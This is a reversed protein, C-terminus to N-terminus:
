FFLVIGKKVKAIFYKHDRLEGYWRTRWKFSEKAPIVNQALFIKDRLVKFMNNWENDEQM